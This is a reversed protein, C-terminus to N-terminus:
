RRWGSTAASTRRPPRASTSTTRRFAPPCCGTGGVNLEENLEDSATMDYIAALHFFHEISGRHQAIWEPDVGLNEAALDGVVPILRPDNGWLAILAELRGLSGERCLLHIEGERNELLEGVLYRGIFGTAGTVFYSM